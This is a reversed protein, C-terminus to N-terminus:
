VHVKFLDLTIKTGIDKQSEIQIAIGEEECYAKVLALGLGAGEQAEDAQYYREHIRLLDTASM